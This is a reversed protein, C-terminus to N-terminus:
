GIEEYNGGTSCKNEKNYRVYMRIDVFNEVM